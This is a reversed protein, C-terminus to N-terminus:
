PAHEAPVRQVPPPSEGRHEYHTNPIYRGGCKTWSRPLARQCPHIRSSFRTIQFYVHSTIAHSTNCSRALTNTRRARDRLRQRYGNHDADVASSGEHGTSADSSRQAILAIPAPITAPSGNAVCRSRGTSRVVSSVAAPNSCGTSIPLPPKPTTYLHACGSRSRTTATFTRV